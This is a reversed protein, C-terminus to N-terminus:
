YYISNCDTTYLSAIQMFFYFMNINSRTKNLVNKSYSAIFLKDIPTVTWFFNQELSNFSCFIGNMCAHLRTSRQALRYLNIYSAHVFIQDPTHMHQPLLNTPSPPRTPGPASTPRPANKCESTAVGV